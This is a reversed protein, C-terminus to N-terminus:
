ACCRLLPLAASHVFLAIAAIFSAMTSRLLVAVAFIIAAAFIINPLAIVLYAQLHPLLLNPGIRLPDVTPWWSGLVLGISVGLVPLSAVFTSGLFKGLLYSRKSVPTSFVIQSTNSTFDRIATGNVFATVMLIAIFSMAGYFQYVVSPANKYVNGIGGGITVNSSITAFFPLLAIILLFIYVMPQRLWYRVEFLFFRWTM